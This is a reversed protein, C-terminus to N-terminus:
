AQPPVGLRQGIAQLYYLVQTQFQEATLTTAGQLNAWVSADNPNGATSAPPPPPASAQWAWAKTTPDEVWKGPNGVGGGNISNPGNQQAISIGAFSPIGNITVMWPQRPDAPDLTFAIGFSKFYDVGNQLTGGVATALAQADAELSLYQPPLPFGNEWTAKTPAITYAPYSM